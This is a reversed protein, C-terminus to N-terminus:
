SIMSSKIAIEKIRDCLDCHDPCSNHLCVTKVCNCNFCWLEKSYLMDYGKVGWNINTTFISPDSIVDGFKVMNDPWPILFVGM